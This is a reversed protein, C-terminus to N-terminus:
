HFYRIRKAFFLFRWFVYLTLKTSFSNKFLMFCKRTPSAGRTALTSKTKRRLFIFKICTQRNRVPIVIPRTKNRARKSLIASSKSFLPKIKVKECQTRVRSKNMFRDRASSHMGDAMCAVVVDEM